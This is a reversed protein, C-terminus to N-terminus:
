IIKKIYQLIKKYSIMDLAQDPEIKIKFASDLAMIIKVHNLSDWNKTNKFSFRSNIRKRQVKLIMCLIDKITNEIKKM